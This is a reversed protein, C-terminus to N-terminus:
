PTVEYNIWLSKKEKKKAIRRCKWKAWWLTFCNAEIGGDRWVYWRPPLMTPDYEIRFKM